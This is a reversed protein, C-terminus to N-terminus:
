ADQSIVHGADQRMKMDTENAVPMQMSTNQPEQTQNKDRGSSLAGPSRQPKESLMSVDDQRNQM